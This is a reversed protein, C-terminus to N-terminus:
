TYSTWAGPTAAANRFTNGTIVVTGFGGTVLQVSIVPSGAGTNAGGDFDNGVIRTGGVGNAYMSCNKNGYEHNDMIHFGAARMVHISCFTTAMGNANFANSLIFMDASRALPGSASYIGAGNNQDFSNNQIYNEAMGTSSVLGNASLESYNIAHGPSALFRVGSIRNRYGRLVFLNGSTNNAKNGDLQLNRLGGFLNVSATNAIHTSSAVLFTNAGNKLKLSTANGSNSQGA